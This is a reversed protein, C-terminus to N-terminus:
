ALHHTSHTLFPLSRHTRGRFYYSHMKSHTCCGLIATVLQHFWLELTVCQDDLCMLMAYLIRCHQQQLLGRTLFVGNNSNQQQTHEILATTKNSMQNYSNWLPLYKVNHSLQKYLSSRSPTLDELLMRGRSGLVKCGVKYPGTFSQSGMHDLSVSIGSEERAKPYQSQTVRCRGFNNLGSPVHHGSSYLM